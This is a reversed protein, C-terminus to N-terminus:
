DRPRLLVDEHEAIGPHGGEFHLERMLAPAENEDARVRNRGDSRLIRVPAILLEVLKRFMHREQLLRRERHSIEIGRWPRRAHPDDSFVSAQSEAGELRWPFRGPARARDEGNRDVM